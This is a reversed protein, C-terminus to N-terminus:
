RRLFLPFLSSPGNSTDLGGVGSLLGQGFIKKGLCFRMALLHCVSNLGSMVEQGRYGLKSSSSGGLVQQFMNQSLSRLTLVPEMLGSHRRRGREEMM